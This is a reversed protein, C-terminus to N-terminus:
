RHVVQFLMLTIFLCQITTLHTGQGKCISPFASPIGSFLTLVYVSASIRAPYTSLKWLWLFIHNQLNCLKHHDETSSIAFYKSYIGALLFVAVNQSSFKMHLTIKWTEFSQVRSKFATLLVRPEWPHSIRTGPAAIPVNTCTGEIVKLKM